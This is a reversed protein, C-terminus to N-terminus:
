MSPVEVNDGADICQVITRAFNFVVNGSCLAQNSVEFASIIGTQVVANSDFSNNIINNKIVAKSSSASVSIATLQSLYDPDFVVGSGTDTIRNGSIIVGEAERASIGDVVVPIKYANLSRTNFIENDIIKNGRDGVKIAQSHSPADTRGTNSIRNKRVVSGNGRLRIGRLTNEDLLLDEILHGGGTLADGSLYIGEKFGRITGNKITINKKSAATIGIVSTDPKATKRGLIFGNLDITVNSVAIEIASGVIEGIRLNKRLCYVSENTIVTPVQQIEICDITEAVLTSPFLLFILSVFINSILKKLQM